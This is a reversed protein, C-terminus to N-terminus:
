LYLNTVPLDNLKKTYEEILQSYPFDKVIKQKEKDLEQLIGMGYKKELWLAYAHLNGGM